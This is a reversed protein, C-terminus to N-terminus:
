EGGDTGLLPMFLKYYYPFVFLLGRFIVLDIIFPILYYELRSIGLNLYFYITSKRDLKIFLYIIMLDSLVKVTKWGFLLEPHITAGRAAVFSVVAAAILFEKGFRFSMLIKGFLTM